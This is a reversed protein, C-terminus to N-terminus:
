CHVPSDNDESDNLGMRNGVDARPGPRVLTSAVMSRISLWVWFACTSSPHQQNGAEDFDQYSYSLVVAMSQNVDQNNLQQQEKGIIM